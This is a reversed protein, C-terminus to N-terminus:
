QFFGWASRFLIGGLVITILSNYWTSFLNKRLWAKTSLQQVPPQTALPMVHLESNTM